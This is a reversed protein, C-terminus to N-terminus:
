DRPLTLQVETLYANSHMTDLIDGGVREVIVAVHTPAATGLGFGSDVMFQMHDENQPTLGTRPSVDTKTVSTGIKRGVKDRFTVTVRWKVGGTTMGDPATWWLDIYYPRYPVSTQDLVASLALPLTGAATTETEPFSLVGFGDLEQRFCGDSVPEIHRDLSVVIWDSGDDNNATPHPYNGSWVANTTNTKTPVTTSLFHNSTIIPRAGKIDVPTATLFVNGNIHDNSCTYETSLATLTNAFVNDKVFSRISTELRLGRQGSFVCRSVTFDTPFTAHIEYDDIGIQAILNLHCEDIVVNSASNSTFIILPKGSGSVNLAKLSTNSALSLPTIGSATTLTIGNTTVGRISKGAPVTITTGIAYDGELLLVETCRPDALAAVIPTHTSGRYDAYTGEHGVTRTGGCYPQNIEEPMNELYRTSVGNDDIAASGFYNNYVGTYAVGAAISLKGSLFNCHDILVHSARMCYHTGSGTDTPIIAAGGLTAAVQLTNTTANVAYYTKGVILGNPLAGTTSFTIPHGTSVGHSLKTIKGTVLDVNSTSFFFEQPLSVAVSLPNALNFTCEEIRCGNAKIEVAKSLSGEFRCLRIISSDGQLVIGGQNPATTPGPRFTCNEILTNARQSLVGVTATDNLEFTFGRIILPGKGTFPFDLAQIGAQFTQFSLTASGPTWAEIVIASGQSSWQLYVGGLTYFGPLVEIAKVASATGVDIALLADSFPRFDIGQFSALTGPPGITVYPNRVTNLRPDNNTVYPNAISPTGSTGTLAAKQDTTPIRSRENITIIQGSGANLIADLVSKNSHAHTDLLLQDKEVQTLHQYLPSGNQNVMQTHDLTGTQIFPTWTGQTLVRHTGTGRTSIAIASGGGTTSLKFTNPTVDRVYYLTNMALPTPTTGTSEFTIAQGNILGHSIYTIISPIIDSELSVAAPLFTFTTGSWRYIIGDQIVGRLDGYLNIPAVPLDALTNVSDRVNGLDAAPVYTDLDDKLVVPNTASPVTLTNSIAEKEAPSLVQASIKTLVSDYNERTLVGLAPHGSLTLIKSDLVEVVDETRLKENLAM